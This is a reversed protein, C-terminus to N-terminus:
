GKPVSPQLVPATGPRQPPAVYLVPEPEAKAKGSLSKVYAEGIVQAEQTDLAMSPSPPPKAQAPQQMALAEKNAQGFAPSMHAYGCGAALLALVVVAGIPKQM